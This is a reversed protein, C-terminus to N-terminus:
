AGGPGTGSASSSFRRSAGLHMGQQRCRPRPGAPQVSTEQTAVVTLAQAPPRELVDTSRLDSVFAPSPETQSCETLASQMDPRRYSAPLLSCADHDRPPPLHTLLYHRPSPTPRGSPQTPVYLVHQTKRPCCCPGPPLSLCRIQLDISCTPGQLM